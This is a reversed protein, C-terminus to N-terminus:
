TVGEISYDKQKYEEENVINILRKSVSYIDEFSTYLPTLAIRIINKPRFDIVISLKDNDIPNILCKSIRWAEKHSIAIHSGRKSKDIPTLLKFNLKKLEDTYISVFYDFLKVSKINLLDTTAEITIDLSTKLTSLSLIHPTGNSFKEISNSEKYEDSYEFPKDHSFWGRIPSKLKRLEQERVYIFAPSGPGGNLYKYTCGVAYDVQSLDVDINVAGISHSLDWIVIANNNRCFKNIEKIPYRYSCKYAVHSLVIIGRKNIIFEKLKEIDAILDNGYDLFNFDIKFDKAILECIYKDSPFNLNDTTINNISKNSQLISKILKFLNISTSSGVYVEDENSKIISALKRSVIRPLIIWSRNWSSILNNGWEEKITHNIDDITDKALVGLSNGDLYIKDEPLIFKERFESLDDKSDLNKAIKKLRDL